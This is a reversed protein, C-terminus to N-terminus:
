SSRELHVFDISLLQMPATTVIPQLPARSPLNPRKQKLCCCINLIYHDIDKRMNPWCFRERALALVRELGLHGMEEHLERYVTRRFKEPLIVQKDCYLIGSTKHVHLKHWDNLYKRVLPTEQRKQTVSPKQRNQFFSLVHSIVPDDQQTKVIDIVRLHNCATPAHLDDSQLEEVNDTMSVIWISVGSAVTSVMALSAQLNEVSIQESCSNMYAKFDGPFRSLSDADTNLTGPRYRIEFNFDALKGVWRLGTANLKATSLVFTLPNNDTYVVFNPAYYLYDRFQETVAWKLALFELKGSHLHYNRKAPSLTRSAYAIVRLIGKQEQYLVSGLGDQSADTHVVFPLSYDPHALIPPSTICDILRNLASQHKTEWKVPTKSPLQGHSKSSTKKPTKTAVAKQLPGHNLLDYTPKAIKAFNKIHRRYVGLLGVVRRVEGVTKPTVNKLDTVARTAKPDMQYGDQSIIRGLFTVERKFLECKKPKLKVGHSKLRQLVRRLHEIHEDFSASFVIVDDLYPICMEDRLAGLCHEMFRQFNAPANRLGFPIRIWEYLGWPTIFATLPQSDKGIFGQHYAKGQDLVSFWSKGDRSDLAEQIRPIPHRDPVSKKNLERYDICLRMGGDKKRVCIVSSSFPSNSKRIFGQNLLDEIYAKVEPYLPRPISLYNKQVPESRTLNIDMQLDPATGIDNEDKAFADAEERLLQKAKEQQDPTLGSIDVDPLTVKSFDNETPLESACSERHDAPATKRHDTQCPAVPSEDKMVDPDTM